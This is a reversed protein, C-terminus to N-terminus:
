FVVEPPLQSPKIIKGRLIAGELIVLQDYEVGLNGITDKTIHHEDRPLSVEFRVYPVDHSSSRYCCVAELGQTLSGLQHYGRSPWRFPAVNMDTIQVYVCSNNVRICGNTVIEEPQHLIVRRTLVGDKGPVFNGMAQLRQHALEIMQGLLLSTEERGPGFATESHVIETM